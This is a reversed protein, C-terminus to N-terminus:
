AEQINFQKFPFTVFTNAFESVQEDTQQVRRRCESRVRTDRSIAISPQLQQSQCRVPQCCEDVNSTSLIYLPKSRNFTTNVYPTIVKVTQTSARFRVVNKLSKERISVTLRSKLPNEPKIYSKNHVQQVM